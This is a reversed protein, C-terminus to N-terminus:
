AAGPTRSNVGLRHAGPPARARVVARSPRRLPSLERCGEPRALEQRDELIRATSRGSGAGRAVAIAAPWASPASSGRLLGDPGGHASAQRGGRLPSM